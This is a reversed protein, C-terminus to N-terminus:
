EPLCIRFVIGVGADTPQCDISGSLMAVWQSALALGLGAGGTAGSAHGRQFARFILRSEGAALGPGRDEVEFVIKAGERKVRLWVRPDAAGQSYKRANDILNGLVQLLVRSDTKLLLGDPVKSDIVLQKGDAALRDAWTERIQEVLSSMLVPEATVTAAQKELKAFDLVNEILQHLRDSEHSLTTLYERKKSEETILGSTLMDLYLRLSTLPTRLEHTVASVFRMRRESLDVLSSGVFWAAGIALMAALWALTLGIRLPTWGTKPLTPLPGPDFAVPLASMQLLMTAPPELVPRLQADPFEVAVEAKLEAELTAWDLQIGQYVVAQDIRAFRVVFLSPEGHSDILWVPRMAGLLVSLTPANATRKSFQSAENGTRASANPLQGMGSGGRQQAANRNGPSAMQPTSRQLTQAPDVKQPLGQGAGKADRVVKNFGLNSNDDLRSQQPPPVLPLAGQYPVSNGRGALEISLDNNLISRNNGPDFPNGQVIVAEDLSEGALRQLQALTSALPFRNQLRVFRQARDDSVNTLDLDLKSDSLRAYESDTMVQPSQWGVKPDFQVHLGMWSPLEVSVLPSLYQFGDGSPPTWLATYDEFKRYGELGLPLYIRGDLKWLALREKEARQAMQESRRREAEERLSGLTLWTLGGVVLASVVLFVAIMGGYRRM